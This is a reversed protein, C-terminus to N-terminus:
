VGDLIILTITFDSCQLEILHLSIDLYLHLYLHLCLHLAIDTQCYIWTYHPLM